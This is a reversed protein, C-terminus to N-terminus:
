KEAVAPRRMYVIPEGYLEGGVVGVEAHEIDVHDGLKSTWWGSPLQRAAHRPEGALDAFIAIKEFSEEVALSDCVEYGTQVYADIVGSMSPLAPIGPPWYVGSGLMAPSWVRTDDRVAWAFCNYRPDQPSTIRYDADTLRPIWSEVTARDTM